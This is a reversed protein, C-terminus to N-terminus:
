MPFYLHFTAGHGVEGEAKIFGNHNTMVRKCISLGIGKGEYKSNQNHLRQFM